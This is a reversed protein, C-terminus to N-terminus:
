GTTIKYACLASWSISLCNNNATITETANEVTMKKRHNGKNFFLTLALKAVTKKRIM